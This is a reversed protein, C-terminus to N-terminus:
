LARVVDMYHPPRPCQHHDLPGRMLATPLHSPDATTVPGEVWQVWAISPAPPKSPPLVAKSAVCCHRQFVPLVAQPLAYPRPIGHFLPPPPPSVARMFEPVARQRVYGHWPPSSIHHPTHQKCEKDAEKLPHGSQVNVRCLPPPAASANWVIVADGTVQRVKTEDATLEVAASSRLASCILELDVTLEKMKNFAAVQDLPVYGDDDMLLVLYKDRQLNQPSFYHAVQLRIKEDLSMRSAQFFFLLSYGCCTSCPTLTERGEFLSRCQGTGLLRCCLTWPAIGITQTKYCVAPISITEPPLGGWLGGGGGGSSSIIIVFNPPGIKVM